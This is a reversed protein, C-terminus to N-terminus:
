KEYSFELKTLKLNLFDVVENKLSSDFNNENMLQTKKKKKKKSENSKRYGVKIIM